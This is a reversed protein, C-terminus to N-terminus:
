QGPAGIGAAALDGVVALSMGDPDWHARVARLVDEATVASVARRYRAPYDLGLEFREVTALLSTLADATDMRLPFSGVLYTRARGLEEESVRERRLRILEERVVALAERVRASECQLEVLFLGGWRGPVYRAGVGYALGRAERVRSYLRSASGGGLIQSAVVLPYHDPHGRTVTAQGLLITAQALPRQVTATGGETALRVPPPEAPPPGVATWGALRAELEARIESATVDGAVAIVAREPRYAADHFAVVDARTITALTTATGEVPRAYPHNPFVLRRLARAAVAGGDEESRQISARVEDRRRDLEDQAFAPRALADALLDLGLPLDRRLIALTLESADRGGEGELSGGVFEIARDIDAASRTASGRALLLATLNALGAKDPPDLAAGAEVVARALVIPLGPREAVLIRLGNPLAFRVGVPAQAPASGALALVTVLAAIGVVPRSWMAHMIGLGPPPRGLAIAQVGPGM